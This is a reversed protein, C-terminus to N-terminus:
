IETLRKHAESIQKHMNKPNTQYHINKDLRNNQSRKKALMDSAARTHHLDSKVSQSM